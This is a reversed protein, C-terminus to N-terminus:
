RAPASPAPAACAAAPDGPVGSAAAADARDAEVDWDYRETYFAYDPQFDPDEYASRIGEPTMAEVDAASYQGNDCLMWAQEELRHGEWVEDWSEATVYDGMDNIRFCGGVPLETWDVSRGNLGDAIRHAREVFAAGVPLGEHVAEQTGDHSM